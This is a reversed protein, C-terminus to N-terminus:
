DEGDAGEWDREAPDYAPAGSPGTGDVVVSDPREEATSRDADDTSPAADDTSRDTDGTADTDLGEAADATTEAAEDTKAPTSGTRAPLSGSAAVLASGVAAPVALGLANGATPWPRLVVPGSQVIYGNATPAYALHALVVLAVYGVVTGVAVGLSTSAVIRRPPETSRTAAVFSAALGVFLLAWPGESLATSAVGNQHRQRPDEVERYPEDATDVPDAGIAGLTHPLAAVVLATVVVVALLRASLRWAVVDDVTEGTRRLWRSPPDDTM